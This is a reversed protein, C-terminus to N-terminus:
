PQEKMAPGAEKWVAHPMWNTEAMIRISPMGKRGREGRQSALNLRVLCAM